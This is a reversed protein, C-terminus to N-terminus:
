LIKSQHVAQVSSIYLDTAEKTREQDEKSQDQQKWDVQYVGLKYRDIMESDRDETSEFWDQFTQLIEARYKKECRVHLHHITTYLFDDYWCVLLIFCRPDSPHFIVYYESLPPEYDEDWDEQWDSEDEAKSPIYYPLANSSYNMRDKLTTFLAYLNSANSDHLSLQVLDSHDEKSASTVQQETPEKQFIPIPVGKKQVYEELLISMKKNLHSVAVEYPTFGSDPDRVTLDAGNDLFLKVLELSGYQIARLLASGYFKIPVNIELGAELLLKCLPITQDHHYSGRISENWLNPDDVPAGIRIFERTVDTDGRGIPWILFDKLNDTKAGYEILLQIAKVSKADRLPPHYFYHGKVQVEPDAGHILLLEAIELENVSIAYHLLSSHAIKHNPDADYELLLRVMETNKQKVARELPVHIHLNPYNPNAGKELLLTVLELNNKEIAFHLPLLFEVQHSQHNLLNPHIGMEILKQATQFDEAEVAEFLSKNPLGTYRNKEEETLLNHLMNGTRAVHWPALNQKNTLTKDAGLALLCSVGRTYGCLAAFHLPTNGDKDQCNVEIGQKILYEIMELKGSSAAMHLLTVQNYASVFPDNEQSEKQFTAVDNEMVITSLQHFRKHYHRFDYILGLLPKTKKMSLIGKEIYITKYFDYIM